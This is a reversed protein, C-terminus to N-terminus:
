RGEIRPEYFAWREPPLAQAVLRGELESPLVGNDALASGRTLVFRLDSDFVIFSAAPLEDLAWAVLGSGNVRVSGVVDDTM